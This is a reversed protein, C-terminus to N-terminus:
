RLQQVPVPLSSRLSNVASSWREIAQYKAGGGVGRQTLDLWGQVQDLHGIVRHDLILQVLLEEVENIKMKLEQALFDLRIRRYSKIIKEMAKGQFDRIIGSIHRYIFKDGDKTLEELAKNFKTVDMNEHAKRMQDVADIDPDTQYVKAERADFPNHSGGSLLNAVVVYKLCQKARERNGIESYSNFASYFEAYARSWQGQDGYMQGWCERIVSQSKPDKVAATLDKTKEYLAKLKVSNHTSMSTKVQMAYIELLEAGKSLDDRGDATRCSRLLSDLSKEANSFEGRNFMMECYMMNVRFWLREQDPMNTLAKSIIEYVRKTFEFDTCDNVELLVSNVASQGDNRTVKPVFELLKALSEIMADYQKAHYHLSVINQLAKFVFSLSEDPLSSSSQGLKVVQEFKKLAEKPEEVRMDDAEYYNNEIQVELSLSEGDNADDDNNNNGNADGDVETDGWGGDGKDGDGWDDGKGADDWGDNGDNGWDGQEEDNWDSM